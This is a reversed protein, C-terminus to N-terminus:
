CQSDVVEEPHRVDYQKIQFSADKIQERNVPENTLRYFGLKQQEDKGEIAEKNVMKLMKSSVRGKYVYYILLFSAVINFWSLGIILGSNIWYPMAWQYSFQLGFDYLIGHIINDIRTLMLMILLSAAAMFIFVLRISSLSARTKLLIM